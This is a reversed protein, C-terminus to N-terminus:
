MITTLPASRPRPRYATDLPKPPPPPPSPPLCRQRPPEEVARGGDGDGDHQLAPPLQAAAAVAASTSSRASSDTSSSQGLQIPAMTPRRRPQDPSTPSAPAAHQQQAHSCLATLERQAEECRQVAYKHMNVVTNLQKRMDEVTEESSLLMQKLEASLRREQQLEEGVQQFHQKLLESEKEQESLRQRLEAEHTSHEISHTHMASAEQMAQREQETLIECKERLIKIFRHQQNLKEICKDYDCRLVYHEDCHQSHVTQIKEVIFRLVEKDAQMGQMSKNYGDINQMLQNKLSHKENEQVKNQETQAKLQSNLSECRKEYQRLHTINSEDKARLAKLEAQLIENKLLVGNHKQIDVSLTLSDVSSANSLPILNLHCEAAQTTKVDIIVQRVSKSLEQLQNFAKNILNKWEEATNM